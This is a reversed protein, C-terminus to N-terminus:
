QGAERHRKTIRDGVTNWAGPMGARAMAELDLGPPTTLVQKCESECTPCEARAHDIMRQMKDFTGCEVCRYSYTPM